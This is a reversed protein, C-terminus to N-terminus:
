VPAPPEWRLTELHPDGELVAILAASGSVKTAMLDADTYVFWSRDDPWLNGPTCDLGGGVVLDSAEPLMGAFM